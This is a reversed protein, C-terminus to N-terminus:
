VVIEMFRFFILDLLHVLVAYILYTLDGTIVWQIGFNIAFLDIIAYIIFLM